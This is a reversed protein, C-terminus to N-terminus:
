GRESRKWLEATSKNRSDTKEMYKSDPRDALRPHSLRWEHRIMEHTVINEIPINYKQMMPIIYQVASSIQDDTLPTCDTCGQFEIGITFDNCKERGNLSSYGAHWTIAEPGALMYRTGDFDIVVHASVRSVSDCLYNLAGDISYFATHHLVIGEVTNKGEGINLTPCSVVNYAENNAEPETSCGCFAFIMALCVAIKIHATIISGVHAFEREIQQTIFTDM